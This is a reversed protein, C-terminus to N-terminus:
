TDYETGIAKKAMVPIWEEEDEGQKFLRIGPTADRAEYRVDIAGELLVSLSESNSTSKPHKQPDICNPTDLVLSPTRECTSEHASGATRKALESVRGDPTLPTECREKAQPADEVAKRRELFAQLRRANRRLRSPPVRKKKLPGEATATSGASSSPAPPTNWNSRVKENRWANGAPVSESKWVLQILTGKESEQVKWSLKRGTNCASDIAKLVLEPLAM